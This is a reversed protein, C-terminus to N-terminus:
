YERSMKIQIKDRSNECLLLNNMLIDYFKITKAFIRCARQLERDNSLMVHMM